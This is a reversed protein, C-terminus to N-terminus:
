TEASQSDTSLPANSSSETEDSHENDRRLRDASDAASQSPTKLYDETRFIEIPVFKPLKSPSSKGSPKKSLFSPFSSFMKKFSSFQGLDEEARNVQEDLENLNQKVV